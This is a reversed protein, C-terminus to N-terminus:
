KNKKPFKAEAEEKYLERNVHPKQYIQHSFNRVIHHDFSVKFPNSYAVSCLKSRSDENGVCDLFREEREKQEMRDPVVTPCTPSSLSSVQWM